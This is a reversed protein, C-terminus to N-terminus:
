RFVTRLYKWRPRYVCRRKHLQVWNEREQCSATISEHRHDVVMLSSGDRVAGGHCVCAVFKIKESENQNGGRRLCLIKEDTCGHEYPQCFRNPSARDDSKLCNKGFSMLFIVESLQCFWDLSRLFSTRSEPGTSDTRVPCWVLFQKFSDNTKRLKKEMCAGFLQFLYARLVCRDLRARRMQLKWSTRVMPVVIMDAGAADDAESYQM